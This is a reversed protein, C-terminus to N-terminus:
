ERTYLILHATARVLKSGQNDQKFEIEDLALSKNKAMLAFLHQRIARYSGTMPVTIRLKGFPAGSGSDFRYEVSEVQLSADLNQQWAEKMFGAVDEQTALSSAFPELGDKARTAAGLNKLHPGSTKAIALQQQLAAERKAVEPIAIAWVLVLVALVALAVQYVPGLQRLQLQLGLSLRAADFRAKTQVAGSM